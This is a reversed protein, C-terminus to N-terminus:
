FFLAFFTVSVDVNLGLLFPSLSCFEIYDPHFVLDPPLSKERILTVHVSSFVKKQMSGNSNVQNRDSLYVSSVGM